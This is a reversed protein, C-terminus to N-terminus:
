KKISSLRRMINSLVDTQMNEYLRNEEGQKALLNADDYTFRAKGWGNAGPEM